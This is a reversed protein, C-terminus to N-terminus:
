QRRNDQFTHEVTIPRIEFCCKHPATHRRTYGECDQLSGDYIPKEASATILWVYHTSPPRYRLRM